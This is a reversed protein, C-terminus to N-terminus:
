RAKTSLKHINLLRIAACLSYYYFLGIVIGIHYNMGAM